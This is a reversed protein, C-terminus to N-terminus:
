GHPDGKKATLRAFGSFSGRQHVDKGDLRAAIFQRHISPVEQLVLPPQEVCHKKALSASKRGGLKLQLPDHGKGGILM